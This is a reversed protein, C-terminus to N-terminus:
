ESPGPLELSKCSTMRGWSCVKTLYRVVPEVLGSDSKSSVVSSLELRQLSHAPLNQLTHALATAGLVNYSLSLTKLHSADSNPALVETLRACSGAGARSCLRPSLERPLRLRLTQTCPGQGSDGLELPSLGSEQAWNTGVMEPGQRGQGMVPLGQALIHTCPIPSCKM